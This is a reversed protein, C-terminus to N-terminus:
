GRLEISPSTLLHTRFQDCDTCPADDSVRAVLRHEKGVSIASPPRPYAEQPPPRAPTSCSVHAARALTLTETLVRLMRMRNAPDLHLSSAVPSPSHFRLALGAPCQTTCPVAENPGSRLPQAAPAVPGLSRQHPTPRLASIDVTVGAHTRLVRYGSPAAWGTM